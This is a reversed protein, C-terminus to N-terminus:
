LTGEGVSLRSFVNKCTLRMVCVCRMVTSTAWSLFTVTAEIGRHMCGSGPRIKPYPYNKRNMVVNVLKTESSRFQVQRCM